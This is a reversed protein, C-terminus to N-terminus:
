NTLDEGAMQKVTTEPLIKEETEKNMTEASSDPIVVMRVYRFAPPKSHKEPRGRKTEIKSMVLAKSQTQSGWGRKLTDNSGKESHTKYFAADLEIVGGLMYKRDRQGMAARLKHLMAWIPEYRKHGLQRKLELASIGKKTMTLFYIAYIWYQYPLKSFEMVTGSRLITRSGCKKCDFADVGTNWYHETHGCKRCVIGEEERFSKVLAKCSEEDPYLQVFEIFNM